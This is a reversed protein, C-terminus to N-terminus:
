RIDFDRREASLGRGLTEPPVQRDKCVFNTIVLPNYRGLKDSPQRHTQISFRHRRRFEDLLGRRVSPDADDDSDSGDSDKRDAAQKPSEIVRARATVWARRISIKQVLADQPDLTALALIGFFEALDEEFLTPQPWRIGM